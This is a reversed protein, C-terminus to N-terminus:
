HPRCIASVDRLWDSAATPGLYKSRGGRGILLTGHAQSSSEPSIHSLSNGPSQRPPAADGSSAITFDFRLGEDAYLESGFPMPIQPQAIFRDVTQPPLIAPQDPATEQDRSVVPAQTTAVSAADGDDTQSPVEGNMSQTSSQGIKEELAALRQLLVATAGDTDGRPILLREAWTVYKRTVARVSDPCLDACRRKVCHDCPVAKAKFDATGVM